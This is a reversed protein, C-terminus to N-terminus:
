RGGLEQLTTICDDVVLLAGFGLAAAGIFGIQMGWFLNEFGSGFLLVVVTIGSPSPGFRGAASSHTYSSRWAYRPTRSAVALYPVYSHMGFIAFMSRYVVIMVALWHENFPRLLDSLTVSRDTIM